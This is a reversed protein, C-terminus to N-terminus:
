QEGDMTPDSRRSRRALLVAGALVVLAIPAAILAAAGVGSSSTKAPAPCPHEATGVVAPRALADDIAGALDGYAGGTTELGRAAIYDERPHCETIQGNHADYDALVDQPAAIAAPAM